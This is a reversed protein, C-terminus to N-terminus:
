LLANDWYHEKTTGKLSRKIVCLDSSLKEFQEKRGGHLNRAHHKTHKGASDSVSRMNSHTRYLSCGLFKYNEGGEKAQKM